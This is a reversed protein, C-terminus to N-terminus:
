QVSFSNIEIGFNSSVTGSSASTIMLPIAYSANPNPTSNGNVTVRAWAQTQGKPITVSAPFTYTSPDPYVYGTSNYVNFATLAATDVALNVTIDEPATGNPGYIVIAAFGATDNYLSLSFNYLPYPTTTTGYGAGGAGEGGNDQFSVVNPVTRSPDLPPTNNDKLCSNLSLCIGLPLINLAITKIIKIIKM